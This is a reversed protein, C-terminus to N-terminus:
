DMERMGAFNLVVGFPLDLIEVKQELFPRMLRCPVPLGLPPDKIFGSDPCGAHLRGPALVRRGPRDRGVQEVSVFVQCKGRLVKLSKGM